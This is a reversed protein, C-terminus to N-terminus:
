SSPGASASERPFHSATSLEGLAEELRQVTTDDPADRPLDGGTSLLSWAGVALAIAAATAVVRGVRRLRARGDLDRWAPGVRLDEPQWLDGVAHTGCEAPENHPRRAWRDTRGVDFPRPRLGQARELASPERLASERIARESGALFKLWVEEPRSPVGDPEEPPTGGGRGQINM